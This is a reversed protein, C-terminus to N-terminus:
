IVFAITLLLPLLSITDQRSLTFFIRTDESHMISVFALTNPGWSIHAGRGLRIFFINKRNSLRNFILSQVPLELNDTFLCM